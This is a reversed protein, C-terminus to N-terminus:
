FIIHLPVFFIEFLFPIYFFLLQLLFLFLHFLFSLIFGYWLEKDFTPSPSHNPVLGQLHTATGVSPAQPHISALELLGDM